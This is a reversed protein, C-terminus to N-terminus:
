HSVGAASSANLTKPFVLTQRRRNHTKFARRGAIIAEAITNCRKWRHTPPSGDAHHLWTLGYLHPRRGVGVQLDILGLRQLNNITDTVANRNIGHQELQRRPAVLRGNRKGGQRLYELMLFDLARRDNLGMAKWAKSELLDRAVQVFQGEIKHKM